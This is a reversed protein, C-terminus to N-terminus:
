VEKSSKTIEELVVYMQGSASYACGTSGDAPKTITVAEKARYEKGGVLFIADSRIDFSSIAM